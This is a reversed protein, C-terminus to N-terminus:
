IKSYNILYRMDIHPIESNEDLIEFDEDQQSFARIDDRYYIVAVVHFAKATTGCLSNVQLANHNECCEEFTTKNVIEKFIDLKSNYANLQEKAYYEFDGLIIVNPTATHKVIGILVTNDTNKAFYNVNFTKGCCDITQTELSEM